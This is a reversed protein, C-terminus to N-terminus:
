LALDAVPRPELSSRLGATAAAISFAWSFRAARVRTEASRTTVSIALTAKPSGRRRNEQPGPPISSRSDESSVSASAASTESTESVRVAAPPVRRTLSCQLIVASVASPLCRPRNPLPRM